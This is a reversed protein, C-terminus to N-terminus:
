PFHKITRLFIHKMKRQLSEELVNKAGIFIYRTIASSHASLHAPRLFLNTDMELCFQIIDDLKTLFGNV